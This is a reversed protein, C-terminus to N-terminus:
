FLKVDYFKEYVLSLATYVVKQFNAFLRLKLKLASKFVNTQDIIYNLTTRAARALLTDFMANVRGILREFREGYNQKRM